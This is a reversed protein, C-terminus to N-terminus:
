VNKDPQTHCVVFVLIVCCSDSKDNENEFRFNFITKPKTNGVRTKDKTEQRKDKQRQYFRPLGVQITEDRPSFREDPYVNYTIGSQCYAGLVM